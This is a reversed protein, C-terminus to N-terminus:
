RQRCKAGMGTGRDRRTAIPQRDEHHMDKRVPSTRRGNRVAPKDAPLGLVTPLLLAVVTGRGARSRLRVSGHSSRAFHRVRGLGTGKESIRRHDDFAHRADDPDMGIGDDAIIIRVNNGRLRVRVVIHGPLRIAVSANTVLELIAAEFLDPVVKVLARAGSIDFRVKTDPGAIARIMPAMKTLCHGVDFKAAIEIDRATALLKSTLQSGRQAANDIAALLTARKARGPKDELMHKASAVVGFLNRLDHILGREIPTTRASPSDSTM